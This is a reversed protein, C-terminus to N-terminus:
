GPQSAPSRLRQAPASPWRPSVAETRSATARAATAAPASRGAVPAPGAVSALGALATITRATPRAAAMQTASPSPAMKVPEPVSGFEPGNSARM